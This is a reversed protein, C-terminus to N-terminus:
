SRTLQTKFEVEQVALGPACKPCGLGNGSKYEKKCQACQVKLKDNRTSWLHVLHADKRACIVAASLAALNAKGLEIHANLQVQLQAESGISDTM